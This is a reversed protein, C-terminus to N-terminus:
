STAWQDVDAGCFPCDAYHCCRTHPSLAHNADTIPVVSVYGASWLCMPQVEVDGCNECWGTM